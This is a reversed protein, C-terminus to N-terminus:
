DVTVYPRLKEVTKEGVGEVEVLEDISRFAGHRERYAVIRGALVPGVRPLTELEEKAARNLSVVISVTEGGRNSGEREDSINVETEDQCDSMEESIEPLGAWRYRYMRVGLGAFFSVVLFLLVGTERRTFGLM